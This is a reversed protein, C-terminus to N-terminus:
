AFVCFKCFWVRKTHFRVGKTDYWFIKYCVLPTKQGCRLHLNLIDIRSIQHKDFGFMGLGRRFPCVCAGPELFCVSHLPLALLILFAGSRHRKIVCFTLFATSMDTLWFYGLNGFDRPATRWSVGLLASLTGHCGNQPSVHTPIQTCPKLIYTNVQPRQMRGM